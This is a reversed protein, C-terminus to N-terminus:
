LWSVYIVYSNFGTLPGSIESIKMMLFFSMLVNILFEKFDIARDVM